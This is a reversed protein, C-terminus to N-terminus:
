VPKPGTRPGSRAIRTARPGRLSETRPLGIPNPRNQGRPLASYTPIKAYLERFQYELGNLTLTSKSLYALSLQALSMPRIIGIKNHKLCVWGLHYWHSNKAVCIKGLGQTATFNIFHVQNWRSDFAISSFIYNYCGLTTGAM